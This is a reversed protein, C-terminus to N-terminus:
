PGDDIRSTPPDEPLLRQPARPWNMVVAFITFALALVILAVVCIALYPTRDANGNGSSM